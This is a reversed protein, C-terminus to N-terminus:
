YGLALSGQRRDDAAGSLQKGERVISQVMGIDGWAPTYKSGHLEPADVTYGINRLQNILDMDFGSEMMLSDPYWQHHFRPAATAKAIDM